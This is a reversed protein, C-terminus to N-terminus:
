QQLSKLFKEIKEKESIRFFDLYYADTMIFEVHNTQILETMVIGTKAINEKITRISDEDKTIFTLCRKPTRNIDQSCIDFFRKFYFMDFKNISHGFFVVEDANKLDSLLNTSALDQNVKKLFSYEKSSCGDEGIGIILNRGYNHVYKKDFFPRYKSDYWYTIDYDTYNFSYVADFSHFQHDINMLQGALSDEKIDEWVVSSDLYSALKEKLSTLFFKDEYALSLDENKEKNKVYADLCEEIDFWYEKKAEKFLHQGLGNDSWEMIKYLENWETSKAFDSYRTKLGLDLDFGNGLILVKKVGNRDMQPM